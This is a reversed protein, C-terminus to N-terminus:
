SGINQLDTLKRQRLIFLQLINLFPFNIAKIVGENFRGLPTFHIFDSTEMFTFDHLRISYINYVMLWKAEGIRKFIM